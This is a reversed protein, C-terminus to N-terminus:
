RFPVEPSAILKNINLAAAMFKLRTMLRQSQLWFFQTPKDPIMAFIQPLKKGLSLISKQPRSDIKSRFIIHNAQQVFSDCLHFFVM